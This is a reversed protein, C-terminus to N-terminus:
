RKKVRCVQAALLQQRTERGNGPVVCLRRGTATSKGAQADRLCPGVRQPEGRDAEEGVMADEPSLRPAAHTPTDTRIASDCDGTHGSPVKNAGNSNRERKM